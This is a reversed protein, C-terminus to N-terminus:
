AGALVEAQQQAVGTLRPEAARELAEVAIAAEVDRMEFARRREGVQHLQMDRPPSRTEAQASSENTMAPCLADMLANVGPTRPDSCARRDPHEYGGAVERHRLQTM